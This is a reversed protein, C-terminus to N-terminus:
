SLNLARLRRVEALEEPSLEPCRQERAPELPRRESVGVFRTGAWTSPHRLFDAFAAHDEHADEGDGIAGLRANSVADSQPPRGILGEAFCILATDEDSEMLLEILDPVAEDLWWRQATVLAEPAPQSALLATRYRHALCATVYDSVEWLTGITSRVGLHHLQVDLGFGEDVFPHLGDAPINVGSQCAWLEVRELGAWEFDASAPELVGDVLQIGTAVLGEGAGHAFFTVVDAEALADEVNTVTANERELRREEPLRVALLLDHFCTGDAVDGPAVTLAGTRAVGPSPRAWRSILNPLVTISDFREVLQRGDARVAAWPVLSALISPLVVLHTLNEPLLGDLILTRLTRELGAAQTTKDKALLEAPSLHLDDIRRVRGVLEGGELWVAIALLSDSAHVRLLAENPALLARLDAATMSRDWSRRAQSEPFELACIRQIRYLEAMHLDSLSQLKTSPSPHDAAQLAAEWGEDFVEASLVVSASHQLDPGWSVGKMIQVHTRLARRQEELPLHATRTALEELQMAMM